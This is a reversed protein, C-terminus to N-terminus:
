TGTPSPPQSRPAAHLQAVCFLQIQPARLLQQVAPALPRPAIVPEQSRAPLAAPARTMNNAPVTTENSSGHSTQWCNTVPSHVTERAGARQWRKRCWRLSTNFDSFTWTAKTAFSTHTAHVPRNYVDYLESITLLEQVTLLISLNEGAIISSNRAADVTKGFAQRTAPPSPLKQEDNRRLAYGAATLSQGASCAETLFGQRKETGFDLM